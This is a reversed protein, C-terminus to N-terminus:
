VTVAQSMGTLLSPLYLHKAMGVLLSPMLTSVPTLKKAHLSPAVPLLLIPTLGETTFGGWTSHKTVYGSGNILSQMPLIALVHKIMSSPCDGAEIVSRSSDPANAM